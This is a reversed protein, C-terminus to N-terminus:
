KIAKKSDGVVSNLIENYKACYYGIGPIFNNFKDFATKLVESNAFEDYAYVEVPVQLDEDIITGTVLSGKSNYKRSVNHIHKIGDKEKIDIDKKYTDGDQCITHSKKIYRLDSDVKISDEIFGGDFDNREYFNTNMSNISVYTKNYRANNMRDTYVIGEGTISLRERDKTITIGNYSYSFLYTGNERELKFSYKNDSRDIREMIDQNNDYIYFMNNKKIITANILNLVNRLNSTIEM